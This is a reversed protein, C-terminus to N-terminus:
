RRASRSDPTWHRGGNASFELNEAIGYKCLIEATARALFVTDGTGYSEGRYPHEWQKLFRVRITM